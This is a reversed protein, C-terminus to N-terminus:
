RLTDRIGDFLYSAYEFSDVPGDSFAHTVIVLEDAPYVRIEQGHIGRASFSGGHNLWWQYAYPPNLTDRQTAAKLYDESLVSSGDPLHGHKLMFMGVRGFDRLTASLCCGGPEDGFEADLTWYADDEMAFRSWITRSLYTTLNNGVAARVVAGLLYTEGTNYNFITGPEATRKRGNMYKFLGVTNRPKRRPLMSVDSDLNGYDENWAVGSRMELLNKITVNAYVGDALVPIYKSLRDDLSQIRGDQLAAGVLLSVISKAVSWSTWRTKPTHGHAYHEYVISGGKIVLMGAVHFREQFAAVTYKGQVNVTSLDRLAVPLPYPEVPTKGARAIGRTAYLLDMNAFSDRREELTWARDPPGLKLAPKTKGGSIAAARGTGRTCRGYCTVRIGRSHCTARPVREVVTRALL